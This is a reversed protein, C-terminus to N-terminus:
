LIKIGALKRMRQVEESVVSASENEAEAGAEAGAEAAVKKRKDIATKLKAFDVEEDPFFDLVEQALSEYKDGKGLTKTKRDREEKAKRMAATEKGQLKTINEAVEEDVHEGDDEEKDPEEDDEEDREEDDESMIESLMEELAEESLYSEETNIVVTAEEDDEAVVEEECAEGDEVLAGGKTKFEPEFMPGASDSPTHLKGAHVEDLQSQVESLENELQIKRKFKIAEERIIEKLENKTIKM